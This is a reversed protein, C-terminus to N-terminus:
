VGSPQVSLRSTFVGSSNSERGMLEPIVYISSIKKFADVTITHICLLLLKPPKTARRPCFMEDHNIYLRCFWMVQATVIGEQHKCGRKWVGIQCVVRGSHYLTTWIGTPNLSFCSNATNFSYSFTFVHGCTYIKLTCACCTQKCTWYEDTHAFWCLNFLCCLYAAPHISPLRTNPVKYHSLRNVNHKSSTELSGLLFAKIINKSAQSLALDYKRCLDCPTTAWM